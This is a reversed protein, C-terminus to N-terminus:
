IDLPSKNLFKDNSCLRYGCHKRNCLKDWNDRKALAIVSLERWFGYDCRSYQIEGDQHVVSQQAQGEM